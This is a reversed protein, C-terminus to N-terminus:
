FSFQGVQSRSSIFDPTMALSRGGTVPTAGQGLGSLQLRAAPIVCSNSHRGYDGLSDNMAMQSIRGSQEGTFSGGATTSAGTISGNSETDTTYNFSLHATLSLIQGPTRVIRSAALNNKNWPTNTVLDAVKLQENKLGVESLGFDTLKVHGTSSLLM